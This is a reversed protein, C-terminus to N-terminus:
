GAAGHGRTGLKGIRRLVNRSDADSAAFEPVSWSEAATAESVSTETTPTLPRSPSPGAITSADPASAASGAPRAISRMPRTGTSARPKTTPEAPQPSAASPLALRCRARRHQEAQHADAGRAAGRQERAGRRAVHVRGLLARVPDREHQEAGHEAGDEAREHEARQQVPAVEVAVRERQQPQRGAAEHEDRQHEHQEHAGVRLPDGLQQSVPSGAAWAGAAGSRSIMRRGPAIGASSAPWADNPTITPTIVSVPETTTSWWCWAPWSTKGIMPACTSPIYASTSTIPLRISRMPRVGASAPPRSTIATETELRSHTSDTTAVATTSNPRPM